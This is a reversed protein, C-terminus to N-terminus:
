FSPMWQFSTEKLSHYSDAMTLPPFDISSQSSRLGVSIPKSESVDVLDAVGRITSFTQFTTSLTTVPRAPSPSQWSSRQLSISPIVPCVVIFPLKWLFRLALDFVRTRCISFLISNTVNPSITNGSWPNWDTSDIMTNQDPVQLSVSNTFLDVDSSDTNLTLPQAKSITIWHDLLPSTM